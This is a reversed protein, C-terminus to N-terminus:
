IKPVRRSVIVKCGRVWVEGDCDNQEGLDRMATFEISESLGDFAHRVCRWEDSEILETAIEEYMEVKCEYLSKKLHNLFERDVSIVGGERNRSIDFVEPIPVGEHTEIIALATDCTAGGIDCSLVWNGPELSLHDVLFECSAVSETLEVFVTSDPCLNTLVKDAVM